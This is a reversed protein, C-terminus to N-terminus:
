NSDLELPFSLESEKGLPNIPSEDGMNFESPLSAEAEMGAPSGDGAYFETRIFYFQM